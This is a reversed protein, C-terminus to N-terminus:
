CSDGDYVCYCCGESDHYPRYKASCDRSACGSNSASSCNGGCSGEANASSPALSAFAALSMVGVANLLMTRRGLDSGDHTLRTSSLRSYARAGVAFLHAAWLVTLVIPIPITYLAVAPAIVTFALYGAWGLVASLAAQRVCVSCRGLMNLSKVSTLM